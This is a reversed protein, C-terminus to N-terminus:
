SGFMLSEFEDTELHYKSVVFCFLHLLFIALSVLSLQNYRLIIYCWFDFDCRKSSSLGSFFLELVCLLSFLFGM